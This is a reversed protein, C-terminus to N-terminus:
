NITMERVDAGLEEVRTQPMVLYRIGDHDFGLVSGGEVASELARLFEDSLNLSNLRLGKGSARWHRLAQLLHLVPSGDNALVRRILRSAAM